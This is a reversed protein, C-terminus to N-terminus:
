ISHLPVLCNSSATAPSAATLEQILCSDVGTDPVGQGECGHKVQRTCSLKHADMRRDRWGCSCTHKHTTRSHIDGPTPGAMPKQETASAAAQMVVNAGSQHAGLMLCRRSAAGRKTVHKLVNSKSFV